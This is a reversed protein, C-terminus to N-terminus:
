MCVKKKLLMNLVLSFIQILLIFIYCPRVHPQNGNKMQTLQETTDSEKYGLPSYGALSRQGHSEGLLFVPTPLWKEPSRRLGPILDPDGSNCSSEKGHSGCPFGWKKLNSDPFIIWSDAVVLLSQVPFGNRQGLGKSRFSSYRKFAFCVVFFQSVRLFHVKKVQKMKVAAYVVKRM